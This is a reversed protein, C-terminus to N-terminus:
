LPLTAFAVLILCVVGFFGTLGRILDKRLRSRLEEIDSLDEGLSDGTATFDVNNLLECIQQYSEYFADNAAEEDIHNVLECVELLADDSARLECETDVEGALEHGKTVQLSNRKM